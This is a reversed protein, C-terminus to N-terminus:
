VHSPEATIVDDVQKVEQKSVSFFTVASHLCSEDFKKLLFLLIQSKSHLFNIRKEKVCMYQM